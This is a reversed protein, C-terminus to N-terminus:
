CIASLTFGRQKAERIITLVNSKYLFTEGGVLNLRINTFNTAHKQNLTAPLKSLQDLLAAVAWSDHLLEKNGKEWKAFCYSCKFNCAETIHWNVVLEQKTFKTLQQNM